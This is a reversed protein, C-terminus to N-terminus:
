VREMLMSLRAARDRESMRDAAPILYINEM